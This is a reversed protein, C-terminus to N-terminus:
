GILFSFVFGSWNSDIYFTDRLRLKRNSATLTKVDMYSKISDGVCGCFNVWLSGTSM